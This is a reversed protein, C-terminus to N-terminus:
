TCIRLDRRICTRTYIYIYVYVYFICMFYIYMYMCRVAHILSAVQNVGNFM